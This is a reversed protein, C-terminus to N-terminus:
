YPNRRNNRYRNHYIYRLIYFYITIKNCCKCHFQPFPIPSCHRNLIEVSKCYIFCIKRRGTQFSYLLCLSINSYHMTHDFHLPKCALFYEAFSPPQHLMDMTWRHTNTTCPPHCWNIMTFIDNNKIIVIRKTMGYLHNAKPFINTIVQSATRIMVSARFTYCM